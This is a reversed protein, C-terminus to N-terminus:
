VRDAVYIPIKSCIQPFDSVREDKAIKPSFKVFQKKLSLILTRIFKTCVTYVLQFVM